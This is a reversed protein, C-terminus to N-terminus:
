LKGEKKLEELTRVYGYPYQSGNQLLASPTKINVQIGHGLLMGLWFEVGAKEQVYEHAGTQAIGYLDVSNVKQFMAYALMYCITNSFYPVRLMEVVEKLPYERAREIGETKITSYYPAQSANVKEKFADLTFLGRRVTLWHDADDMSFLMDVKTPPTKLMLMKAVVWTEKDFPCTEWGPGSGLIIINRM